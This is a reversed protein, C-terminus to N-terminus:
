QRGDIKERRRNKWARRMAERGALLGSGWAFHLNYGGCDGDVNLVEGCAFCGPLTKCELKTDFQSLVLGGRCVQAQRMDSVGTVETTFHLARMMVSSIMQFSRCADGEPIEQTGKLGEAQLCVDLVKKHLVGLFFDRLCRGPLLSLRKEIWCSLEEEQFEPLFNIEVIVQKKESLMRAIEGSLQFVVIGSIGEKTLQLEGEEQRLLKRDATRDEEYLQLRAQSRVGALQRYYASERCICRTLAPYLATSRLGLWKAPRLPDEKKNQIFGGARSGTALIVSDAYVRRNEGGETFCIQFGEKKKEIREVSISCSVECELESLRLRLVDLVTSATEPLPYFYGNKERSLMGLREFFHLAAETPFSSIVSELVARDDTHYHIGSVNEHTFNCKGNGTALIKKGVRDNSELLLVRNREAKGSHIKAEELASIAAAMGAAGAGIIIVHYQQLYELLEEVTHVIKEVGSAELEERTGYGYAVAVCSIGAARAGIVDHEKDGVMIVQDRHDSMRLRRLAEEIVDVKKVRTGDMTAGVMEDFYQSIEFHELIQAVFKEPKSSAVSLFFGDDKLTKLLDEIGPYLRNEFLGVTSYRERFYAVAQKAKDRDLDAYKMFQELIPPGIFVRLNQMEPEPKGMKELAYQVSKIIGEGSETLTGDLDFLIAKKM